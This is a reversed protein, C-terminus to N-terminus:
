SSADLPRGAGDLHLYNDQFLAAKKLAIRDPITLIRDRLIVLGAARLEQLTRNVHVTSLGMAEGLDTQTLPMECSNGDTMGAIELRAFLECFLHSLREFATRQGLNVIWERQVATSVMAEWRLAQSIRPFSAMLEDVNQHSLEALVVPTITSVSHDMGQMISINLDWVDGPLFFGIIQRRGDELMKYRCAWGKRVINIADPKEGEQIVDERPGLSRLRRTMLESLVAVERDSFRTFNNLKRVLPETM